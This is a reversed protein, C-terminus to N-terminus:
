NFIQTILLDQQSVLVRVKVREKDRKAPQAKNKAM